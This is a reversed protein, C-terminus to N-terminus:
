IISGVQLTAGVVEESMESITLIRAFSSHLEGSAATSGHMPRSDAINVLRQRRSSACSHFEPGYVLLLCPRWAQGQTCPPAIDIPRQLSQIKSNRSTNHIPNANAVKQKPTLSFGFTNGVGILRPTPAITEHKDSQHQSRYLRSAMRGKEFASQM